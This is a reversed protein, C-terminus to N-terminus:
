KFSMLRSIGNSVSVSVTSYFFYNVRFFKFSAMVQRILSDTARLFKNLLFLTGDSDTVSEQETYINELM